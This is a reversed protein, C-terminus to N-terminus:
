VINSTFTASMEPVFFLFIQFSFNLFNYSVTLYFINPVQIPANIVKLLNVLKSSIYHLIVFTIENCVGVTNQSLPPVM